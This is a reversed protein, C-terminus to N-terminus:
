NMLIERNRPEFILVLLYCVGTDCLNTKAEQTHRLLPGM